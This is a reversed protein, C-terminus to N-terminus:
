CTWSFFSSRFHQISYALNSNYIGGLNMKLIGFGL